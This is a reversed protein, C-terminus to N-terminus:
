AVLMQIKWDTYRTGDPFAYSVGGSWLGKEWDLRLIQDMKARGERHNIVTIGSGITFLKNKSPDGDLQFSIEISVGDLKTPESDEIRQFEFGVFTDGQSQESEGIPLIITQM